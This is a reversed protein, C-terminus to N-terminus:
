VNDAISSLGAEPSGALLLMQVTVPPPFQLYYVSQM